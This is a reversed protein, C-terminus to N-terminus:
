DSILKGLYLSFLGDLSHINLNTLKAIKDLRYRLTNRHIHLANACSKMDGFHEMYITLTKILLGKKDVDKLTKYAHSLADGRWSEKMGTLLVQLSFDEFLYVKQHPKLKKGIALTEIATQYSHSIGEWSPFYRGLACTIPNKLRNPIRELLGDILLSDAITLCAEGESEAPKLIVLQNLSTMAILCEREQSQLLSLLEKLSSGNDSVELVIAVRPVELSINLQQAWAELQPTKKFDSRVLQLTFEERQRYEWQLTEKLNWQEVIMEATMKLLQGYQHLAKAEGTIGIVGIIEGHYHLPVNVGPRVGMLSSSADENLDVTRNHAIALLAGEHLSGIRGEDGSWLITGQSDMVNVNYKLIDMTRNVIQKAIAKDLVYM